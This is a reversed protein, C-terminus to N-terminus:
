LHWHRKVDCYFVKFFLYINSHAWKDSSLFTLINLNINKEYLKKLFCFIFPILNIPHTPFYLSIFGNFYLLCKLSWKIDWRKATKSRKIFVGLLFQIHYNNWFKNWDLFGGERHHYKRERSGERKMVNYDKTNM